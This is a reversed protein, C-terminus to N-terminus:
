LCIYVSTMLSIFSLLILVVEQLLSCIYMATMMGRVSPLQTYTRIKAVTQYLCCTVNSLYLVTVSGNSLSLWCPFPCFVKMPIIAIDSDSGTFSFM